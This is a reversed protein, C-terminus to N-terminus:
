LIGEDAFSYYKDDGSMIIHDLLQIDLVKGAEKLKKTLDLDAQSPNRNGSPHNHAVIFGSANAALAKQFIVKPDAVVGAVGGTFPTIKAVVENARSLFLVKFSEVHDSGVWDISLIEFADRSASIKPCVTPRVYDTYVEGVMVPKGRKTTYRVPALISQFMDM